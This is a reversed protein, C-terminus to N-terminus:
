AGTVYKQIIKNKIDEIEHDFLNEEVLEDDLFVVEINNGYDTLTYQYKTGDVIFSGGYFITSSYPKEDLKIQYNVM